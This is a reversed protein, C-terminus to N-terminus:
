KVKFILGYLLLLTSILAVSMRFIHTDWSDFIVKEGVVLVSTIVYGCFFLGAWLLLPVKVRFYSKLLVVACYISVIALLIYVSSSM